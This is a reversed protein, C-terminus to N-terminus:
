GKRSLYQSCSVLGGIFMYELVDDTKVLEPIYEEQIVEAIKRRLEVTNAVMDCYIVIRQPDLSSIISILYKSVLELVGEPTRALNAPDDSYALVKNVYQMEGALSHSGVILQGGVLVAGSNGASMFCDAEKNKVMKLGIVLSSDKKSRIANVPHESMDITESAHVIRVNKSEASYKKLEERIRKEDGVFILELDSRVKLAQLSGEIIASPANDGGMADIAIRINESM